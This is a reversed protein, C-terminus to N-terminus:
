LKELITELVLVIKGLFYCITLLSGGVIGYTLEKM